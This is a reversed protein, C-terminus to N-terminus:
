ERVFLMVAPEIELFGKRAEGPLADYLEREHEAQVAAMRARVQAQVVLFEAQERLGTGHSPDESLAVHVREAGYESVLRDQLAAAEAYWRRAIEGAKGTTAEDMKTRLGWVQLCTGAFAAEDQSELDLYTWGTRLWAAGVLRVVAGAASPDTRHALLDATRAVQDLVLAMEEIPLRPRGPPADPVSLVKEIDAQLAKRAEAPLGARARSVIAVAIRSGVAPLRWVTEMDAEPPMDVREAIKSLLEQGKAMVEPDMPKDKPAEAVATLLTILSDWAIDDLNKGDKPKRAGEKPAAPPPTPPAALRGELEAVRGRLSANEQDLRRGAEAAARLDRNEAELRRVEAKSAAPEGPAPVAPEPPFKVATPNGTWIAHAAAGGILCLFAGAAVLAKANMAMVVGKVATGAAAPPRRLGALPLLAARWGGGRGQHVGALRGRLDGLARRLRTKVTNVPVGMREAIETPGLDHFFRFVITSRHPEDLAMVAEVVLRQVELREAVEAPTPLPGPPVSALDRLDRRASSRFHMRTLNRAVGALWSRLSRPREADEELGALLAEQAIDDALHEDRVLSRALRHVFGAHAVLSDANLEPDPARM